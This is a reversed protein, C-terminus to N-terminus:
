GYLEGDDPHCALPPHMLYTANIPSTSTSAAHPPLEFGAAAGDDLEAAEEAGVLAAADPM